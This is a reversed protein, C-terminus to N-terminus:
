PSSITDAGHSFHAPDIVLTRNGVVAKSCTGVEKGIVQDDTCPHEPDTIALTAYVKITHLGSGLDLAVWNFGHSSRTSFYTQITDNDQDDGDFGSTQRRYTRDCFV